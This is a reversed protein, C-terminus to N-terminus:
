IKPSSIFEEIVKKFTHLSNENSIIVLYNLLRNHRELISLYKKELKFKSKDLRSGQGKMMYPLDALLEDKIIGRLKMVIEDKVHQKNFLNYMTNRSIHLHKAVLTVTHGSRKIASKIIAGESYYM